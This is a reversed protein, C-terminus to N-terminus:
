KLLIYAFTILLISIPLIINNESPAKKTLENYWKLIQEKTREGQGYGASPFSAWVKRAKYFASIVNGKALDDLAGKEDLLYLAGIDQNKPSFSTLNLKKAIDNWTRYLFQYRGSATSTIGWKTVKINPHKELSNFKTNGYLTNYGHKVGESKAITDLGARVFPNNLLQEYQLKTKM